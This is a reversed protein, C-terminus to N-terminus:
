ISLTKLISKFVEDASAEGNIRYLGESDPYFSEFSKEYNDAVRRQLAEKEYLDESDRGGRRAASTEVSCEVYLCFGPKPFDKNLDLITDFDLSLSQYALSSFLYRDCFVWHGAELRERIIKQHERRDAAFLQALTLPDASERKELVDRCARGIFGDSPEFTRYCSISNELCYTELRNLQTTTGSGDLGELVVFKDWIGM